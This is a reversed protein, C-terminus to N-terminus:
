GRHGSDLSGRHREFPSPSKQLSGGPFKSHCLLSAEIELDIRGDGLDVEVQNRFDEAKCDIETGHGMVDKEQNGRAPSLFKLILLDRGQIIFLGKVPEIFLSVFNGKLELGGTGGVVIANEPLPGFLLPFLDRGLFVSQIGHGPSAEPPM